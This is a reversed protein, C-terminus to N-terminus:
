AVCMEQCTAGSEKVCCELGPRCCRGRCPTWGVPCLEVSIPWWPPLKPLEPPPGGPFSVSQSCFGNDCFWGAPCCTQGGCCTDGAPCCENGCCTAGKGCCRGGCVRQDRPCCGSRSNPDGPDVCQEDADCCGGGPQNFPELRCLKPCCDSPFGPILCYGQCGMLELACAAIAPPWFVAGATCIGWVLLCQEICAQCKAQSEPGPFYAPMLLQTPQLDAFVSTSSAYRGTTRYLSTEGSFGPMKM